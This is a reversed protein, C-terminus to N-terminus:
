EGLRDDIERTTEISNVPSRQCRFWRSGDRDPKTTGAFFCEFPGGSEGIAENEKSASHIVGNGGPLSQTVLNTIQTSRDFAETAVVHRQASCVYSFEDPLNIGPSAPPVWTVTTVMPKPRSETPLWM